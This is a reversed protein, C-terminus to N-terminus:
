NSSTSIQRPATEGYLEKVQEYKQRLAEVKAQHQDVSQQLIKQKATLAEMSDANDAFEASVAAMDTKLTKLNSNMATMGANFEKEGTLKIDTGITRTAM